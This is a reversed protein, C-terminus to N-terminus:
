NIKALTTLDKSGKARLSLFLARARARSLTNCMKLLVFL